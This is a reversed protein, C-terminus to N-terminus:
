LIICAVACSLAGLLFMYGHPATVADSTAALRLSIMFTDQEELDRTVAAHSLSRRGSGGSKHKFSLTCTGFAVVNEKSFGEFFSSVLFTQVVAMRDDEQPNRIVATFGDSAENMISEHTIHGQRFQLSTVGSIFIYDDTSRLCINVLDGSDVDVTDCELKHNCQCAKVSYELDVETVHTDAAASSLNLGTTFNNALNLTILIKQEHFVVSPAFGDSKSAAVLDVRSCLALRGSKGGDMYSFIPSDVFGAHNVDLSVLLNNHTSSLSTTYLGPSIVSLPVPTRCNEEFVQITPTRKHTHYNFVIEENETAQSFRISIDGVRQLDWDLPSLDSDPYGPPTSSLSSPEGTPMLAPQFTTMFTPQYSFTGSQTSIYSTLDSPFESPVDSSTDSDVFNPTASPLFSPFDGPYSAETDKLEFVQVQGVSTEATSGTLTPNNTWTSGVAFGLPSDSFLAISYRGQGLRDGDHTGAVLAVEFVEIATMDFSPQLQFVRVVGRAQNQLWSTGAFSFGSRSLAVARGFKSGADKGFVVGIEVWTNSSPDFSFVSVSGVNPITTNVTGVDASPSSAIITMGDRSMDVAFGFQDGAQGVIDEGVQEWTGVLPPPQSALEFVQVLGSNMNNTNSGHLPSSIVIRQGSASLATSFGIFANTAAGSFDGMLLWNNEADETHIEVQGQAMKCSVAVVNGLANMSVTDADIQQGFDSSCVITAALNGSPLDYIEIPNPKQHSRRIAIRTFDDDIAFFEGLKENPEGHLFFLPKNTDWDSGDDLKGYIFVAGVNLDFSTNESLIAHDYLPAGVALLSGDASVKITAGFQVNGRSTVNVAPNPGFLPSGVRNLNTVDRHGEDAVL